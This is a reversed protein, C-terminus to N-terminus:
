GPSAQAHVLPVLDSPTIVPVASRTYDKVNRTVIYDVGVRSATKMMVADEFDRSGSNLANKIDEATTDAIGYLQCLVNMAGRCAEDGIAKRIVYFIDTMSKATLIGTMNNAAVFHHLQIAATSFPIRNQLIDIMVCTDFLVKM